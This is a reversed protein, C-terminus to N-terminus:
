KGWKAKVAFLPDLLWEIFTRTDTIIEAKLTMGAQLDATENYAKIFDNKLNVRVRYVPEKYDVPSSLEGPKFASRTVENVFGEIIGFKQYPYADVMVRVNMGNKVFGSSRTPLLLEAVMKRSGPAISAIPMNANTTEGKRYSISTIKGNIPARIIYGDQISLEAMSAELQAKADRLQSIEGVEGPSLQARENSLNNIEGKSTVDLTAIQKKLDSVQTKEEAILSNRQRSLDVIQGKRLDIQRLLDSIQSKASLIAQSQKDIEFQSTGGSENSQKLRWLTKEEIALNGKAIDVNTSLRSIETKLALINDYLRKDDESFKNQINQIQTALRSNEAMHKSQLAYLQGTLRVNEQSYKQKTINEQINLESIRAQTQARQLPIIAGGEGSIDISLRAIEQGQKVIDGQKVLIESITGGRAAYIMSLGADPVIWGFVTEKRSYKGLSLFIVVLSISTVAIGFFIKAKVPQWLSVDGHLKRRRAEIVQPRFLSM